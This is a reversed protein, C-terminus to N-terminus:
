QLKGAAGFLRFRSLFQALVELSPLWRRRNGLRILLAIAALWSFSMVLTLEVALAPLQERLIAVSALLLICTTGLTFVAIMGKPTNGRRKLSGIFLVASFLHAALYVAAGRAANGGQFLFMTATVAVFVAWATNVFGTAKISLVSLRSSASGSGMHVVATALALSAATAAGAYTKGYALTLAWPVIIIGGGAVLLSVLVSVYTCFAMVNDPTKELGAKRKAM